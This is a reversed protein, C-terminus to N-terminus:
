LRGECLDILGLPVGVLSITNLEQRETVEKKENEPPESWQVRVKFSDM